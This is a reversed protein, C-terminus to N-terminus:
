RKKSAAPKKLGFLTTTLIQRIQGSARDARECMPDLDKKTLQSYGKDNAMFVVDPTSGVSTDVNSVWRVLFVGIEAMQRMTINRHYLGQAVSTAYPQGHGMCMFDVEEAYGNPLVHFLKAKGRVLNELGACLVEIAGPSRLRASYRESLLAMVDEVGAIAESLNLARARLLVDGVSDMFKGKLGVAGAFGVAISQFQHIKGEETPEMGRMTRKDAIIAVGDTCKGAVILTGTKKVDQKGEEEKGSRLKRMADVFSLTQETAIKSVDLCSRPCGIERKKDLFKSTQEFALQAIENPMHNGRKRLPCRFIVSTRVISCEGSM